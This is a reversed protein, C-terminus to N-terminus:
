AHRFTLVFNKLTKSWFRIRVFSVSIQLNYNFKPAFPAQSKRIESRTLFGNEVSGRQHGQSRKLDKLTQESALSLTSASLLPFSGCRIMGPLVAAKTGSNETSTNGKASSCGLKRRKCHLVQGQASCEEVILELKQASTLILSFQHLKTKKKERLQDKAPIRVNRSM